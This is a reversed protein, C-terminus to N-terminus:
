RGHSRCLLAGGAGVVEASEACGDVDCAVEVTGLRTAILLTRVAEVGARYNYGGVNVTPVEVLVRTGDIVTLQVDNAEVADLVRGLTYPTSAGLPAKPAERRERAIREVEAAREDEVEAREARARAVHREFTETDLRALVVYQHGDVVDVVVADPQVDITEPSEPIPEFWRPPTERTRWVTRNTGHREDPVAEIAVGANFREVGQRVYREVRALRTAERHAADAEILRATETTPMPWDNPNTM